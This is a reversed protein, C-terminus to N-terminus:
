FLSSSIRKFLSVAVYNLGLLCALVEQLLGVHQVDQLGAAIGFLASGALPSAAQSASAMLEHATHDQRTGRRCPSAALIHYMSAIHPKCQLFHLELRFAKRCCRGDAVCLKACRTHVGANGAIPLFIVSRLGHLEAHHAQIAATAHAHQSGLCPAESISHRRARCFAVCCSSSFMCLAKAAAVAPEQLSFCAFFPPKTARWM